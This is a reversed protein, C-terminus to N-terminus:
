MSLSRKRYGSFPGPSAQPRPVTESAPEGSPPPAALKRVQAMLDEATVTGFVQIPWGAEKLARATWTNCTNFLHFEGTAPYFLSFPYLGAAVSDARQAGGRDFTGDLYAVLKRFGIPPVKLAVIENGPFVERPHAELGAMHVVAPTPLFVARLTMGLTTQPAPYYDADGWGLGLYKADPFDAAEPLAGAPLTARSLVIGSHGDARTVYITVDGEGSDLNSPQATRHPAAERPAPAFTCAPNAAALLGACLLLMRHACLMRCRIM